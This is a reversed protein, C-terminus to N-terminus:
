SLRKIIEKIKNLVEPLNKEVESNWFRIVSIYKSELYETRANDYEKNDKTNHTAGGLEIVLKISPAYFDVIFMDIPHQRRWKIKQNNNRLARWLIQEADTNEKRLYRAKIITKFQAM